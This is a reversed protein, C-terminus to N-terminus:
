QVSGAAPQLGSINKSESNSTVFGNMYLPVIVVILVSIAFACHSRRLLSDKTQMAVGFQSLPGLIGFGAPEKISSSM